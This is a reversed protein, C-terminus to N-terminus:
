SVFIRQKTVLRQFYFTAITLAFTLLIVIVVGSVEVIRNKKMSLVRRPEGNSMDKRLAASGGKKLLISIFTDLLIQSLARPM